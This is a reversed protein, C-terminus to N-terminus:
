LTTLVVPEDETILVTHEFQAFRKNDKMRTEWDDINIVQHKGECILAEICITFGPLLEHGTNAKGYCPIEPWEHMNKGIGHGAYDRLVDFGKSKAVKHLTNSIDGIRNCPKAMKIAENLASLSSEVLSLGNIDVDSVAKAFASDLKFDKYGIVTDVTILDGSKIYHGKKPYSHVSQSNISVCLGTPFPSLYYPAYGKCSPIVKYKNCLSIFREELDYVALGPKIMSELETLISALIKGGEKMIQIESPSKIFKLVHNTDM